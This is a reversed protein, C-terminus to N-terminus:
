FDEDTFFPGLEVSLANASMVVQDGASVVQAEEMQGVLYVYGGQDQNCLAWYSIRGWDATATVFYLDENNSVLQLQGSSDSWMTPDNVIEVRAYGVDSSPEDLEEGSVYPTPATDKILALYFSAPPEATRGFFTQLIEGAGWLTLRGAM